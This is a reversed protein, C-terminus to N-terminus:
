EASRWLAPSRQAPSGTESSCCARHVM